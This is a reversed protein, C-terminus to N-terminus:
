NIIIRKSYFSNNLDFILFYVGPNILSLDISGSISDVESKNIIKKGQVTKLSVSQIPLESYYFVKGNTPNPYVDIFDNEISIISADLGRYIDRYKVSQIVENGSVENVVVKLIPYKEGKSWWEYEVIYLEPLATWSGTGSFTQYLSDIEIIEHKIRLASFTGYPTTITGWGDVETTRNRHQIFKLDAFPNLDVNTYGVSSDIQNFQLPLSYKTEITDSSFPVGQGDVMLSYGLSNISSDSIKSYAYLAEVNVPLFNNLADVPIDTSETHYSAQYESSAFAGFSFNVLIPVTSMSLYSKLEQTEPILSSFDWSYNAGTADYGTLVPSAESIRVTDGSSAFDTSDLTIQVFSYFPTLVLLIRSFFNFKSLYIM